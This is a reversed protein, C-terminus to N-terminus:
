IEKGSLWRLRRSADLDLMRIQIGSDRVGKELDRLTRGMGESGERSECGLNLTQPSVQRGPKAHCRENISTGGTGEELSWNKARPVEASTGSCIAMLVM